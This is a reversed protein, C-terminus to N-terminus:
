VRPLFTLQAILVGEDEFWWQFTAHHEEDVRTGRDLEVAAPAFGPVWFARFRADEDGPHAGLMRRVPVRGKQVGEPPVEVRVLVSRTGLARDFQRRVRVEPRPRAMDEPGPMARAGAGLGYAAGPGPSPDSGPGPGLGSPGAGDEDARDAQENGRARTAWAVNAQHRKGAAHALWSADTRHTSRCVRCEYTGLHTKTRWQLEGGGAEAVLSALAGRGGDGVVVRPLGAGAKKAGPRGQYAM